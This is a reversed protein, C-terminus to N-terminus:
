DSVKPYHAAVLEQGKTPVGLHGCEPCKGLRIRRGNEERVELSALAAQGSGACKAHKWPKRTKKQPEAVVPTEKKGFLRSLISM